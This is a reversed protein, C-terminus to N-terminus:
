NPYYATWTIDSPVRYGGYANGPVARIGFRVGKAFVDAASLGSPGNPLNPTLVYFAYYYRDINRNLVLINDTAKDYTYTNSSVTALKYFTNTNRFQIFVDFTDGASAEFGPGADWSLYLYSPVQGIGPAPVMVASLELGEGVLTPASIPTYKIGVDGEIEQTGNQCAAFVLALALCAVGLFGFRKKMFGESFCINGPSVGLSVRGCDSLKGALGGHCVIPFGKIHVSYGIINIIKFTDLIRTM